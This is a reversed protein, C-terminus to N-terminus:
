PDPWPAGTRMADAYDALRADDHGRINPLFPFDHPSVALRALPMVPVLSALQPIHATNKDFQLAPQTVFTDPPLLYVVGDRWPQHVLAHRSISFVYFPGSIHGGADVLRVCANSVSMTYRNRDAIAFFMPWIGDAAAYVAKQNGFANLDDSQRPEFRAIDPKGSGHLALHHQGAMHCLFQWKPAAVTYDIVPNNGRALTARLLQDFAHGTAADIEAHPLTLWYDPLVM